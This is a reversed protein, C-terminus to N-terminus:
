GAQKVGLDLGGCGSFLSVMRPHIDKVDEESFGENIEYFLDDFTTQEMVIKKKSWLRQM